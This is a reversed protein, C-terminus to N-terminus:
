HSCPCSPCCDCSDKDCECPHDALKKLFPCQNHDINMDNIHMQVAMGCIFIALGIVFASLSNLFSDM